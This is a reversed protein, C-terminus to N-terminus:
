AAASRREPVGGRLWRHDILESLGTATFYLFGFALVRWPQSVWLGSGPLDQASVAAPTMGLRPLPLLITVFTFGLYFLAGVGWSRQAFAREDGAPAQGLLVSLLRNVTLGWFSALPWWTKFTLAFGAVFLTYFAGLGLLSAVKRERPLDGVMVTGMFGSSHVVIFELLMTLMLPGVPAAGLRAPDIWVVLFVLGLLLDPLAAGIARPSFSSSRDV